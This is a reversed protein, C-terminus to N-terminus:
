EKSFLDLKAAVEDKGYGQVDENGVRYAVYSGDKLKVAKLEPGAPPPEVKKMDELNREAEGENAGIGTLGAESATWHGDEHQKAM